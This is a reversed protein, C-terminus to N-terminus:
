LVFFFHFFHLIVFFFSALGYVTLSSPAHPHGLSSEELNKSKGGAWINKCMHDVRTSQSWCM